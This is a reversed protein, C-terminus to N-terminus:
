GNSASIEGAISQGFLQKIKNVGYGLRFLVMLKTYAAELTMDQGSIVGLDDLEAGAAYLSFDIQGIYVQSVAVLVIEKQNAKRLASTLATNHSPFTGRGYL